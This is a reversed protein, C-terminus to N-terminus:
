LPTVTDDNTNDIVSIGDNGRSTTTLRWYPDFIGERKRGTNYSCGILM